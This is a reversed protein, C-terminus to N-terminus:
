VNFYLVQKPTKLISKSHFPLLYYFNFSFERQRERREDSDNNLLCSADVVGLEEREKLSTGSYNKNKRWGYYKRRNSKLGIHQKTTPNRTQVFAIVPYPPPQRAVWDFLAHGTKM